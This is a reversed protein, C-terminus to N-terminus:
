RPRLAVKLTRWVAQTVFAGNMKSLAHRKTARLMCCDTSSQLAGLSDFPQFRVAM